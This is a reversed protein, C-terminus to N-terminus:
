APSAERTEGNPSAMGICHRIFSLVQKIDQRAEPLFPVMVPWVHFLGEREIWTVPINAEEARWRIDLADGYLCESREVTIMLPPLGELDAQAPSAYRESRRAPDPIYVDVVKEIMDASLMVDSASNSYVYSGPVSNGGPSFLVAGAPMPRGQDRLSLMLAMSLGGGASDGALVLNDASHGEDLLHQYARVVHEVASPYPHEPAFPYRVLYVTGRLKGALQAALGHYTKTIGAIYAGGHIYLVVPGDGTRDASVREGQFAECNIRTFKAKRAGLAMPPPRNFVRRLHRVLQEENLGERRIVRRSFARILRAQLSPM